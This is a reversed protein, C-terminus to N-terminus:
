WNEGTPALKSQEERNGVAEWRWEHDHRQLVGEPSCCGSSLSSGETSKDLISSGEKKEVQARRGKVVKADSPRFGEITGKGQM